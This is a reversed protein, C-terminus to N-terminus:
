TSQAVTNDDLSNIAIRVIYRDNMELNSRYKVIKGALPVYQPTCQGRELQETIVGVMDGRVSNVLREVIPVVSQNM